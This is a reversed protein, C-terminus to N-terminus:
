FLLLSSRELFCWIIIIELAQRHKGELNDQKWSKFFEQFKEKM